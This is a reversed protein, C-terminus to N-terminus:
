YEKEILGDKLKIVRDVYKTHWEEHTVMVITQDLERNLKKFLELIQGSSGTDLNACPEDAFIIKPDAVLARAVAVRQQEGGSMEHPMHHIRDGLGVKVLIDTAEKISEKKTKGMMLLLLYVNKLGSLEPLLAYEQFVYGLETLRIKVKERDSLKLVDMGDLEVTGATPNDLLGMIRLLTSKGSGSPGMIAVFEGKRISINVEKLAPVEVKGMLYTKTLDTTRIM